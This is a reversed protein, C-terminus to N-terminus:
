RSEFIQRWLQMVHVAHASVRAPDIRSQEQGQLRLQHQWKRMDRYADAVNAALGPEILGLQGALKLLAINGINATLEPYRAAYQLVLYQVIFEIDIMGGADQKLDFLESRNPRADRMRQRMALVEQKLAAADPREQRLVQCRIQEFRQGIAADGACFRARTLAQHEWLWASSQQYKEFSGVSSVLMGSAGDPRLATDIDFLIGAPTHSTMWTIFRQALRAYLGPADQDDDDFLFILDLDSVYGLEKGGLKGYAIVAFKPVELHRKAV